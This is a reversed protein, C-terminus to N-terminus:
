VVACGMGGCCVGDWWLVGGDCWLVGGECWLVDGDCWLVGGECEPAWMVGCCWTRIQGWVLGPCLVSNQPTVAGCVRRYEGAQRVEGRRYEGAQRVEGGCGGTSVLRDYRGGWVRRCEGAQRVKGGWM